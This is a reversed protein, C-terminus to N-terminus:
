TNSLSSTRFRKEKWAREKRKRGKRRAFLPASVKAGERELLRRSRSIRGKREGDNLNNTLSQTKWEKREMRQIKNIFLFEGGGGEKPNLNTITERKKRERVDGGERGVLNVSLLPVGRRERESAPTQV